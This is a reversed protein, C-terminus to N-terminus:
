HRAEIRTESKKIQAEIREKAWAGSSPPNLGEPLHTMDNGISDDVQEQTLGRVDRLDANALIAGTLSAGELKTDTLNTFTVTKTRM